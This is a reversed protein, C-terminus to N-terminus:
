SAALSPAGARLCQNGVVLPPITPERPGRSRAQDREAFTSHAPPSNVVTFSSGCCPRTRKPAAVLAALWLAVGSFGDAGSTTLSAAPCTLTEHSAVNSM